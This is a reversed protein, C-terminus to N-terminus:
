SHSAPVRASASKFAKALTSIPHAEETVKWVQSAAYVTKKEATRGITEFGVQTLYCGTPRLSVIGQNVRDAVHLTQYFPKLSFAGRMGFLSISVKTPTFSVGFETRYQNWGVIRSQYDVLGIAVFFAAVMSTFLLVIGIKAAKTRSSAQMVRKGPKVFTPKIM